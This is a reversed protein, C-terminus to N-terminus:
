ELSRLYELERGPEIRTGTPDGDMVDAMVGAAALADTYGRDYAERSAHQRTRWRLYILGAVGLALSALTHKADRAMIAVGAIVLLLVSCASILVSDARDMAGDLRESIRELAALFRDANLM